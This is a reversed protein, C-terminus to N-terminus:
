MVTPFNPSLHWVIKTIKISDSFQNRFKRHVRHCSFLSYILFLLCLGNSSIRLSNEFFQNKKTQTWVLRRYMIRFLYYININSFFFTKDCCRYDVRAVCKFFLNRKQCKSSAAVSKETVM